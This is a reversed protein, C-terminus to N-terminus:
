KVRRHQRKKLRRTSIKRSSHKAKGGHLFAANQVKNKYSPLRFTTAFWNKIKQFITQQAQADAQAEISQNYFTPM